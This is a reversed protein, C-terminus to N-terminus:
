VILILAVVIRLLLAIPLKIELTDLNSWFWKGAPVAAAGAKRLTRAGSKAAAKAKVKAIM